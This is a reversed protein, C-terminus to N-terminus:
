SYSISGQAIEAPDILEGAFTFALAAAEEDSAWGHEVM